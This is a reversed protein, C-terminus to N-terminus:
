AARDEARVKLVAIAHTLAEYSPSNHKTRRAMRRLQALVAKEQAEWSLAHYNKPWLGDAQASKDPQTM